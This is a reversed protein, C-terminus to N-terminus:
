WRWDMQKVIPRTVPFSRYENRQWVCNLMQMNVEEKLVEKIAFAALTDHVAGVNEEKMPVVVEFVKGNTRVEFVAVKM